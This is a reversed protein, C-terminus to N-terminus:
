RPTQWKWLCVRRSTDPVALAAAYGAAPHLGQLTWREPAAPDDKVWLVRAPEHPHLSVAFGDLPFSVGMGVAKIFAEKRTWCLFFADARQEPPLTMLATVEAPSFFRRAIAEGGFDARMREVDVGVPMGTAVAILAWDGSHSLNFQLWDDADTLAPKGFDNQEFRLGPAPRQLYRALIDRLAAHAIVFHLRDQQFRFRRARRQEEEDLVDFLRTVVDAPLGLFVRWVHVEDSALTLQRPTLWSDTPACMM